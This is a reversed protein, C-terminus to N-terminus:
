KEWKKLIQSNSKWTNTVSMTYNQNLYKGDVKTSIVQKALFDFKNDREVRWVAGEVPDISGHIKRNIKKMTSIVDIPQGYSILNAPIFDQKVCRDRQELYSVREKNHFLDFIVFPEHPIDYITGHAQIMWEGVIRENDNLLNRFRSINEYVWDAFIHHQQYNSDNAFYGARILPYVDGNINAVSVCSGDLKETVIIVDRHDRLKKTCINEQGQHIRKDTADIVKSTSFHPISGYTPAGLPKISKM